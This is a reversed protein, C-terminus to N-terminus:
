GPRGLTSPAFALGAATASHISHSSGLVTVPVRWSSTRPLPLLPEERGLAFPCTIQSREIEYGYTGYAVTCGYGFRMTSLVSARCLCM